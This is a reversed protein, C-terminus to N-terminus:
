GNAAAALQKARVQPANQVETAGNSAEPRPCAVTAGSSTNAAMSPKAGSLDMGQDPHSAM